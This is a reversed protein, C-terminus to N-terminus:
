DWGSAMLWNVMQRRHKDDSSCKPDHRCNYMEWSGVRRAYSLWAKYEQPSLDDSQAEPELLDEWRQQNLFTAIHPIYGSRWPSTEAARQAGQIAQAQQAETLKDWRAQAVKLSGRKGAPWITKLDDFTM